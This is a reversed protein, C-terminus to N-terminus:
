MSSSAPSMWPYSSLASMTCGSKVLTKPIFMRLPLGSAKDMGRVAMMGCLM